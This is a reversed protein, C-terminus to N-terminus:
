PWKRSREWAMMQDRVWHGSIGDLERRSGLRADRGSRCRKTMRNLLDAHIGFLGGFHSFVELFGTVFLLKSFENAVDVAEQEPPGATKQVASTRKFVAQMSFRNQQLFAKAQQLVAANNQGKSLVVATIVRLVATMLRYFEKLSAPNDIDLGIDPDTSFLKSESVAAFFGSHLVLQTGDSTQCLRLLVSSATHFYAVATVIEENDSQFSTAVNGISQDILVPIFNLSTLARLMTSNMKSLQFLSILGDLLLLSSVRTVGRGSFADETIVGVVRDGAGQITQMLQRANPSPLKEGNIMTLPLTALIQCCIRYCVDRLGAHTAADAIAKLCSRFATLLKQHALSASASAEGTLGLAVAPILILVLKALVAASNMSEQLAREFRPLITQLGQLAFLTLRDAKLVDVSTMLAVLDAWAELASVKADFIAKLNNQSDMAVLYAHIDNEVHEEDLAERFAGQRFLERKRLDLLQKALKLDWISGTTPDNKKCASFDPAKIYNCDPLDFADTTELDFFDALELLTPVSGSEDASYKITGLLLDVIKEQISYTRREMAKRLELTALQFHRERVVIFSRFAEASTNYLLEPDALGWGDWAPFTSALLLQLSCSSLLDSGQMVPLVLSSTLPSTALSLLVDLCARKLALLWSTHGAAETATPINSACAMIAHFLSHAHSFAGDAEIKVLRTGCGFGLLCHAVAPLGECTELSRLLLTLIGQARELKPSQQQMELDWEGLKFYQLLEAAIPECCESIMTVLRAGVPVGGGEVLRPVERLRRSSCFKELLSISESALEPDQGAIFSAVNAVVGLQSSIVDDYSALAPNAVMARTPTEQGVLPRVIDFYTSQLKLALNMVRVSKLTAQATASGVDLANLEDINQAAADALTAVVQNNLLWEMVRAFPHMRAYQKLSSVRIVSDVAVDATNALVVLDENFTALCICVFDLCACRVVDILMRDETTATSPNTSRFVPGLVFDIYLDIGAHRHPTGLNEPFPLADHSTESRAAPAVLACLLHVIGAATELNAAYYQLYQRDTTGQRVSSVPPRPLNTGSPALGPIWTDLLVWMGDNVEPIKDTLLAALTDFCCAHVRANNGIAALQFLVEGLHFTQEKLIWNRADPSTRCIHSALRLYSELMIHTEPEVFDVEAAIGKQGSGQQTTALSSKLSSAYVELESFIQSWSISFGKRLKGSAMSTDELLFRHGQNGSREDSVISRLLECFAAVRPTPLRKSAWRLFGYLNNEKDSWFDQAAEHDGQYAYSMIVLFRELHLEPQQDADLAGSFQARRRDDEEVKLRRIVDPMNAVLADCFKQLESMLVMVHEHDAQTAQPTPEPFDELLFNVLDIKAPEHWLEPKLSQCASLIYHFAKNKIADFFIKTRIEEEKQRDAVRLTHATTGDAFRSSYEALWIATAAAKFSSHKWQTTETLVGHVHKADEFTTANDSGFHASGSTLITIYHVTIDSTSDLQACKNLFASYDQANPSSGRVIYSLVTCLSEHQRTLLMRQTILAEELLANDQQGTMVATQRHAEVKRLFDEIEALGAVCKRWFWAQDGLQGHPGRLIMRAKEQFWQDYQEETDLDVTHQLLLRLCDLLLARHKHFEILARFGFNTATSRETTSALPLCLQVTELEDLDLEDSVQLVAHRFDDTVKFAQGAVTIADPKPTVSPNVAKRSSESRPKRDLLNRFDDISADLEASLREITSLHNATFVNLDRQLGQLREM